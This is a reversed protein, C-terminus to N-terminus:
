KVVVIGIVNTSPAEDYVLYSKFRAYKNGGDSLAGTLFRSQLQDTSLTSADMWVVSDTACSGVTSGRLSNGIDLGSISSTDLDSFNLSKTYEDCSVFAPSTGSVVIVFPDGQTKSVLSMVDQGRVETEDYAAYESYSRISRSADNQKAFVHWIDSNLYVEYSIMGLMIIAVLVSLVASIISKAESM